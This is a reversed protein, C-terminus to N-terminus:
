LIVLDLYVEIFFVYKDYIMIYIYLSILNMVYISLYINEVM